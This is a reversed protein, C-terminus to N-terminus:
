QQVCAAFDGTPHRDHVVYANEDLGDCIELWCGGFDLLLRTWIEHDKGDITMEGRGLEVGVLHKGMFRDVEVIESEVWRVGSSDALWPPVSAASSLWLEDFKWWSVSVRNDAGFYLRVPLDDWRSWEAESEIFLDANQYRLLQKGFLPSFAAAIAAVKSEKSAYYAM